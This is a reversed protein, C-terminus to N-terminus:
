KDTAAARSKNAPAAAEKPEPKDAPKAAAPKAPPKAPAKLLGRAKADVDSLRVSTKFGGVEVEYTKLGGV